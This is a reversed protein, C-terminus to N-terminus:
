SEGLQRTLTAQLHEMVMKELRLAVARKVLRKELFGLREENIYVRGSRGMFLDLRLAVHRLHTMSGDGSVDLWGYPDMVLLKCISPVM